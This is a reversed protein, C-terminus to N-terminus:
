EMNKVRVWEAKLVTRTCSELRRIRQEVALLTPDAPSAADPSKAADIADSVANMVDDMATQLDNASTEEFNLMLNVAAAHHNATDVKAYVDLPARGAALDTTIALVSAVFAATETRLQEIWRVRNGALVTARLQRELSAAQQALQEKAIERQASVQDIVNKRGARAAILSGALGIAGGLLGTWLPLLTSTNKTGGAIVVVTDPNM